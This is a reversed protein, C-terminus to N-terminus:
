KMETVSVNCQMTVSGTAQLKLNLNECSSLVYRVLIAVRNMLGPWPKRRAVNPINIIKVLAKM